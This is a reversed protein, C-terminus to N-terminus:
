IKLAMPNLSRGNNVEQHNNNQLLVGHFGPDCDLNWPM